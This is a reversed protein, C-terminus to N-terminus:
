SLEFVDSEMESVVAAVACGGRMRIKLSFKAKSCIKPLPHGIPGLRVLNRLNLM